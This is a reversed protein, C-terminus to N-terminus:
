IIIWDSGIYNVKARSVDSDLAESAAVACVVLLERQFLMHAALLIADVEVRDAVCPARM